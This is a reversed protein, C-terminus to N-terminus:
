RRTAGLCADSLPEEMCAANRTNHAVIAVAPAATLLHDTMYNLGHLIGFGSVFLLAIFTRM